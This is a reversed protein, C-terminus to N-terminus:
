AFVENVPSPAYGPGSNITPCYQFVGGSPTPISKTWDIGLASYITATIDQIFIGRKQSWGYDATYRGLSDTSGIIRGGAVGGGVMLGCMASKLHDRGGQGNLPGPTRGFEGMVVILTNALDGSAQLDSILASLGQDLQLSLDWINALTGSLRYGRSYMQAHTDWNQHLVHIFRAGNHAQVAQRAVLLAKGLENGGYRQQDATSCTFVNGTSSDYMMGRATEYFADFDSYAPDPSAALSPDLAKLLAFKQDFRQESTPGYFNHQLYADAFGCSTGTTTPGYAGGLFASGQGANGNLALFAPFKGATPLESSVVSGIHPTEADVAPNSSHATHVAWQGRPHAEEVSQMSRLLCLNGTLQSLNPFLTANLTIGNNTVINHNKPANGDKYDFTDVHSPAGLLNVFICTKASARTGPAPTFMSQARASVPLRSLAGIAGFGRLLDRRSIRIPGPRRIVSFSNPKM